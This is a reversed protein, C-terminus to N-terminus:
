PRELRYASGYREFDHSTVGNRLSGAFRAPPDVMVVRLVGAEDPKLLGAHVAAAALESDGTYVDTGWIQGNLSGTVRFFFTAGIRDGYDTMNRPAENALLGQEGLKKLDEPALKGRRDFYAVLEQIVKM